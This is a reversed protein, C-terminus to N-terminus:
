EQGVKLVMELTFIVAFVLDVWYLIQNRLSNQGTTPDEAALTISSAVICAMVLTEFHRHNVAKSVRM